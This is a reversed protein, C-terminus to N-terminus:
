KVEIKILKRDILSIGSKTAVFPLDKIQRVQKITDIYHEEEVSLLLSHLQAQYIVKTVHEILITGNILVSAVM